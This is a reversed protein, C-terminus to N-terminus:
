RCKLCLLRGVVGLTYVIASSRLDGRQSFVVFTVHGRPRVYAYAANLQAIPHKRRGARMQLPDVFLTGNGLRRVQGVTVFNASLKGDRLCISLVYM